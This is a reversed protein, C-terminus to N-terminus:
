SIGEYIFICVDGKDQIRHKKHYATLGFYCQNEAVM